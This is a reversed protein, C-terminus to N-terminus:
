EKMEDQFVRLNCCPCKRGDKKTSSRTQREEIVTMLVKKGPRCKSCLGDVCKPCVPKTM